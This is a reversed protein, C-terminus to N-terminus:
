YEGIAFPGTIHISDKVSKVTWYVDPLPNKAFDEGLIRLRCSDLCKVFFSLTPTSYSSTLTDNNLLVQTKAPNIGAGDDYVLFWIDDDELFTEDFPSLQPRVHDEFVVPDTQMVTSPPVDIVISNAKYETRYLEEFFVRVGSQPKIKTSITSNTKENYLTELTDGKASVFTVKTKILGIDRYKEYVIPVKVVSYTSDLIKTSFHAIDTSDNYVWGIDSTITAKVAWYITFSSDKALNIQHNILSGRLTVQDDCNVTGLKQAWVSDPSDSAFVTCTATEWEDIGTIKWRLPIEQTAYPSAQNYGDYPFDVAISHPTNVYIDFITQITDGFLDVMTLTAKRLGTDKFTYRFNSVNYNNGDVEWLINDIYNFVSDGLISQGDINLGAYFRLTQNQEAYVQTTSSFHEDIDGTYRDPVIYISVEFKPSEDKAYHSDGCSCLFYALAILIFLLKNM